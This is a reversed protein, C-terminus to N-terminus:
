ILTFILSLSILSNLYLCLKNELFESEFHIPWLVFGFCCYSISSHTNNEGGREGVNVGSNASNGAVILM